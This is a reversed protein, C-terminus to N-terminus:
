HASETTDGRAMDVANSRASDNVPMRLQMGELFSIHVGPPSQDLFLPDHSGLVVALSHGEDMDYAVMTLPMATITNAQGPVAEKFTWPTFSFLHGWVGDRDVSLLYVVLTGNSAAPVFTLDLEPIGRFHHATGASEVKDSLFVAARIRNINCMRFSERKKAYSFFTSTIYPIGGEVGCGKGTTITSLLADEKEPDRSPLQPVVQQLHQHHPPQQHHQLLPPTQATQIVEISSTEIGVRDTSACKYTKVRSAVQAPAPRSGGDLLKEGPAFTFVRMATTVEEWSCYGEARSSDEGEAGSVYISDFMLQPISATHVVEGRAHNDLLYFDNWEQARNWVETPIGFLGPLEPGAHDGAAFELHKPVNLDSFFGIFQNPTFLCDGLTNAIFVAPQNRNIGDVFNVPSSNHMIEHLQDIKTRNKLYDKFMTQQESDARGVVRTAFKLLRGAGKRITEGNGLFSEALDVWSSMAVVSKARPDKASGLLSLGGGYSIGSLGIREPDANTNAIVWDIATSVDAQDLLGALNIKGGSGWFGRATYSLVTYGKNAYDQARVVYQFRNLGWSSIFILTPNKKGEEVPEPDFLIAELKFGDQTTISVPKYDTLSISGAAQSPQVGFIYRGAILFWSCCTVASRYLVENGEM